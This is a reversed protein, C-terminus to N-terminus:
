SNRATDLTQKIEGLVKAESPSIRGYPLFGGASEAVAKARKLLDKGFLQDASQSLKERLAAVYHKWATLLEDGPQQELWHELLQHSPSDATIGADREAALIQRKEDEEVKGDAWAICALPILAVAAMTEPRVGIRVLETLLTGDDMGCAARLAEKAQQESIQRRLKDLLQQNVRYFFENELQQARESFTMTHM